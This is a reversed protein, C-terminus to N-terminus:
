MPESCAGGGVRAGGAFGGESGIVALVGDGKFCVIQFLGYYLCTLDGDRTFVEAM